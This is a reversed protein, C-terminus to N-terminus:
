KGGQNLTLLLVCMPQVQGRRAVDRSGVIIEWANSQAASVSHVLLRLLPMHRAMSAVINGRKVRM